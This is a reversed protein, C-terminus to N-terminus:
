VNVQECRWPLLVGSLWKDGGLLQALVLGGGLPLLLLPQDALLLAQLLHLRLLLGAQQPPLPLVVLQLTALVLPLHQQGSM